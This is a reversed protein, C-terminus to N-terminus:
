SEALREMLEAAVALVAREAPSLRDIEQELWADREAMDARLAEAGEATLGIWVRRRDTDDRRRRVLGDRELAALTRTLSQPQLREVEALQRPTREGERYLEALV